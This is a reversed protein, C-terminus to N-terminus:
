QSADVESSPGSLSKGVVIMQAVLGHREFLNKTSRDGPLADGGCWTAGRSLLTALCTSLLLDGIGVERAAEVVYVHSIHWRDVDSEFASLSGMVTAGVGGVFSIRESAAGCEGSLSGRYLTAERRALDRHLAIEDEDSERAVRVWPDLETEMQGTPVRRM